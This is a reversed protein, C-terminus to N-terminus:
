MALRYLNPRGPNKESMIYSEDVLESIARSIQRPSVSLDRGMSDLSPYTFPRKSSMRLALYVGALKANRSLFSSMLVERMWKDRNRLWEGAGGNSTHDDKKAM